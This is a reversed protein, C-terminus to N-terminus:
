LRKYITFLDRLKNYPSSKTFTLSSSEWISFSLFTSQLSNKKLVFQEAISHIKGTIRNVPGDDVFYHARLSFRLFTRIDPVLKRIEDYSYSGRSYDILRKGREVPELFISNPCRSYATSIIFLEFATFYVKLRDLM